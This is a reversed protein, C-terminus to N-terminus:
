FSLLSLCHPTIAATYLHCHCRIFRQQARLKPRTIDEELYNPGVSAAGVLHQESSSPISYSQFPSSNFIVPLDYQYIYLRGKWTLSPPFLHPPPPASFRILGWSIFLSTISFECLLFEQRFISSHKITIVAQTRNDEDNNLKDTCKNSESSVPFNLKIYCSQEQLIKM